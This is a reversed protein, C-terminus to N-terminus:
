KLNRAPIKLRSRWFTICSHWGSPRSTWNRKNQFISYVSRHELKGSATESVCSTLFMQGPDSRLLSASSASRQPVLSVHWQIDCFCQKDSENQCIDYLWNKLGYRKNFGGHITRRLDCKLADKQVSMILIGNM